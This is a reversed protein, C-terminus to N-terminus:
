KKVENSKRKRPSRRLQGTAPQKSDEEEEENLNQNSESKCVIDILRNMFKGEDIEVKTTKRTQKESENDLDDFNVEDEGIKGLLYNMKDVVEEIKKDNDPLEIRLNNFKKIMSKLEEMKQNSPFCDDHSLDDFFNSISIIDALGLMYIWKVGRIDDKIIPIERKLWHAIDDDEVVEKKARKSAKNSM